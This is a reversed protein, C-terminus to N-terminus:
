SAALVFNNIEITLLRLCIEHALDQTACKGSTTVSTIEFIRNGRGVNISQRDACVNRVWNELWYSLIMYLPSDIELYKCKTKKVQNSWM